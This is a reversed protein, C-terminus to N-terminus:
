TIPCITASNNALSFSPNFVNFLLSHSQRMETIDPLLCKGEKIDNIIKSTLKSSPIPIFPKIELKGNLMSYEIQENEFLITQTDNVLITVIVGGKFNKDSIISVEGKRSKDKLCMVGNLEKYQSGRRNGNNSVALDSMTNELDFGTLYRFLDIYHISNCALGFEGGLVNMRVVPSDLQKIENKISIYNLFYRNPLNGFVNVGNEAALLTIQDFQVKSQFVIKELLFQKVGKNILAKTIDFRPESSTAVIALDVPEVLFDISNIRILENTTYGIREVNNNFIEDSSEIVFVRTSLKSDLISQAHRCGMGGFGIVLFNKM